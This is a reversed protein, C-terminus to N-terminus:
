KFTDHGNFLELHRQFAELFLDIDDGRFLAGHEMNNSMYFVEMFPGDADMGQLMAQINDLNEWNIRGTSDTWKIWNM